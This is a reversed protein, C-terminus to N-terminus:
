CQSGWSLSYVANNTWAAAVRVAAEATLAVVMWTDFTV